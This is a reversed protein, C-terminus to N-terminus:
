HPNGNLKLKAYLQSGITRFGVCMFERYSDKYFTVSYIEQSQTSVPISVGDRVTANLMEVRKVQGEVWKEGYQWVLRPLPQVDDNNEFVVYEPADEKKNVADNINNELAAIKADVIKNLASIETDITNKLSTLKKQIADKLQGNDGDSLTIGAWEIVGCIEEQVANMWDPGPATAPQGTTPNGAQFKGEKTAFYKEKARQM